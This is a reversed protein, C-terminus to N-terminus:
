QTLEQDTSEGSEEQAAIEAAPSLTRFSALKALATDGLLDVIAPRIVIGYPAAGMDEDSAEALEESKRAIGWRKLSDLLADLKAKAPLERQALMRHKEDLEVVDVVVEGDDNMHGQRASEDYIARLVLALITEAVTATGAKSQQPQAFAYRLQRNVKVDIGLPTLVQRFNREYQDVLAYATKSHRDAYYLVQETVLRYAAAEFEEATARGNSADALTEWMPAAM